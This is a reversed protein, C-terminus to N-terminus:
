IDLAIQNKLIDNFTERSRILHAENNYWLVE